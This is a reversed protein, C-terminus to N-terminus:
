QESNVTHALFEYVRRNLLVGCSLVTMAVGCGVFIMPINKNVLDAIVGSLGMAIPALGGAITSLLGFVRGRIESPTTVQLIVTINVALFGGIMGGTLALGLAIFPKSVVGLLGYLSSELIILVIMGRARTSGSIKLLGASIYGLLSGVSYSAVLFGYWDPTAHLFDEVYFPLLTIIPVTFFSLFASILVLARLGAQHWIYRLGEIIDRGFDTFQERWHSSKEPVTQPITTFTVGIAGILSTLGNIFFLLPAGLIRFLTGGLGQGIFLSIQASMQGLSNATAISAKPVLDPIAAVMAPQFFAMLAGGFGLVILLGVMITGTAQPNWFMLGALLLLTVARLLNTLIIVSKRSHRDAFTGGVPGLIVAPLNAVMQMVGMLTASDTTHKIWFVMGVMTAQAGILSIFQSQWLLVFDRNFLKSYRSATKLETIAADITSM